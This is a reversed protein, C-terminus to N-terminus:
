RIGSTAGTGSLSVVVPTGDSAESANIGGGGSEETISTISPATPATNDIISLQNSAATLSSASVNVLDVLENNTGTNNSGQTYVYTHTVGSITATFAVSTVASGIDNALLYQAVAAVDGTTTLSVASGFTVADDFRIIGNNIAHSSVASGTNLLLTSNTGNVGATNAAVAAGGFGLKESGAASTSSTFDTIIDYGSVTGSTGSGGFTLVSDGAAFNFIDSGAGGTLTDGGAGGTITDVGTGGVITDIQSSGTLTETGSTGKITITDTGSTWGSFTWNAATFTGGASVNVVVGQAASTGTIQSSNSIEGTGFQAGNFTATSTGSTNAFTINEFSLFGNVGDAAAASLNVDVGAGATGIQITDTGNGASFKDAAQVQNTNTVTVTDANSSLSPNDTSTTATFNTMVGAYNAIGEGTLPPQATGGVSADLEWRAGRAAAGVLGTAGLVAAGTALRLGDLFAAGRRGRAADCVWLRIEGDAALARGIEALHSRHEEITELSLAGAGFSVEGPQGHAIIHIAEVDCRGQLAIAIQRPAAQRSSLMVAEIGPRLGARLTEIDAVACDIFAIQKMEVASSGFIVTADDNTVFEGDSSGRDNVTPRKSAAVRESASFGAVFNDM